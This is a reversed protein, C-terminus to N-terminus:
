PAWRVASRDILAGSRQDRHDADSEPSTADASTADSFLAAETEQEPDVIAIRGVAGPVIAGRRVCGFLRAPNNACLAAVRELPIRGPRVGHRELATLPTLDGGWPWGLVVDILGSRIALWFQGTADALVSETCVGIRLEPRRRKMRAAWELSAPTTVPHILMPGPPITRIAEELHNLAVDPVASSAGTTGAARDEALADDLWSSEPAVVVLAGFAAATELTAVVVALDRDAAVMLAPLRYEHVLRAVARDALPKEVVPLFSYDSRAHESADAVARELDEFRVPAITARSASSLQSGLDIPEPFLLKGIMDFSRVAERPGDIDATGDGVLAITDDVVVVDAVFRGETSVIVGGSLRTRM